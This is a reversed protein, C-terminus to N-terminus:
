SMGKRVRPWKRFGKEGWSRGAGVRAIRATRATPTNLARARRAASRTAESGCARVPRIPAEFGTESGLPLPMM